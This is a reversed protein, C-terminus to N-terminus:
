AAAQRRAQKYQAAPNSSKQKAATGPAIACLGADVMAPAVACGATGFGAAVACFIGRTVVV